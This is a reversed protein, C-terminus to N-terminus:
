PARRDSLKRQARLMQWFLLAVCLVAGGVSAPTPGGYPVFAVLAALIMAVGYAVQPRRRIPPIAYSAILWVCAVVLAVAFGALFEGAIAANM